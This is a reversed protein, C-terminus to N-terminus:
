RRRVRVTTTATSTNGAADTATATVTYRGRRLKRLKVTNLGEEGSATVTAVPKRKGRRLVQLKVAAQETLSFRLTKGRVTLKSVVPATTDLVVGDGSQQQTTQGDGSGGGSAPAEPAAAVDFTVTNSDSRGCPDTVTLIASHSGASAFAHSASVGTASGGDDFAWAYTLSRNKPESSGSGDFSAAAGAVASGALAAKATPKDAPAQLEYAGMDSRPTCGGFGDAIRPNGALDSPPEGGLLGAPDGADILPSSPKLRYDGNGEDVFQPLPGKIDTPSKNLNSTGNGSASSGDSYNSYSTNITAAGAGAMTKFAFTVLFLRLISNRLTITAGWPNPTQTDVTLGKASSGVAGVITDHDAVLSAVTNENSAVIASGTGQQVITSDTLNVGAARVQVGISGAVVRLKSLTMSDDSVNIPNAADISSNRVANDTDFTGVGQFPGSMPLSVSSNVLTAGALSVASSGFTPTPATPDPVVRVASATGKVMYLATPFAGSTRYPVEVTLDRLVTAPSSVLLLTRTGPNPTGLSTTDAGRGFIEVPAGPHDYSFGGGSPAVYRINGLLVRDSNTAAGAADLAAQVGAGTPPYTNGAACSNEPLVCYTAASASAPLALAALVPLLILLRHTNM